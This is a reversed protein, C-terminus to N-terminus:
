NTTRVAVATCVSKPRHQGSAVGAIARLRPDLATGRKLIKWRVWSELTDRGFRVSLPTGCVNPQSGRRLVSSPETHATASRAGYNFLKQYHGIM